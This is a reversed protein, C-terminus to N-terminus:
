SVLEMCSVIIAESSSQQNILTSSCSPFFSGEYTIMRNNDRRSKPGGLGGVNDDPTGKGKFNLQTCM